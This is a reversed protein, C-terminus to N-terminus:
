LRRKFRCINTLSKFCDIISFASYICGGNTTIHLYIEPPPSSSPACVADMKLRIELSRLYKCLSFATKPTIDACFYLHNNIVYINKDQQQTNEEEEEDDCTYKIHKRKKSARMYNHEMTPSTISSINLIVIHSLRIHYKILLM